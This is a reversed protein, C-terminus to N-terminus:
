KSNVNVDIKGPVNIQPGRAANQILPLGYYILLVVFVILLIVALLNGLGNGAPEQATSPTTNNIVVM